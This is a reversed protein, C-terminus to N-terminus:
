RVVTDSVLKAESLTQTNVSTALPMKLCIATLQGLGTWYSSMLRETQSHKLFWNKRNCNKFGRLQSQTAARSSFRFFTQETRCLWFQNIITDQFTNTLWAASYSLVAHARLASFSLYNCVTQQSSEVAMDCGVGFFLLIYFAVIGPNLTRWIFQSQLQKM